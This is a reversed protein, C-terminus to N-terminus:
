RDTPTLIYDFHKWNQKLQLEVNRIAIPGSGESVSIMVKNLGARMAHAPVVMQGSLWGTYQFRLSAETGRAEGRYAPDALDPWQINAFLPAAENVTIAPPAHLDANLVEFSVVAVLPQLVLEFRYESSPSETPSLRVVEPDLPAQIRGYLKTDEPTPSALALNGFPAIV